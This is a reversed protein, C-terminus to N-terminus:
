TFLPDVVEVECFGRLDENTIKGCVNIDKITVAVDLYCGNRDNEKELKECETEDKLLGFGGRCTSKWGSDAIEECITSDGLENAIFAYCWGRLEAESYPENLDSYDGPNVKIDECVSADKTDMGIATYCSHKYEQVEMLNCRSLDKSDVALKFEREYEEYQAVEEQIVANIESESYDRDCGSLIFSLILLVLLAGKM